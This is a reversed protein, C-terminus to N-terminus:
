VGRRIAFASILIVAIISIFGAWHMPILQIFYMSTLGLALLVLSVPPSVVFGAAAVTGVLIFAGLFGEKGLLIVRDLIAEVFDILVSNTGAVLKGIYTGNMNGLVYSFSGSRNTSCEKHLISQNFGTTNVVEICYTDTINFADLYSVFFTKTANHFTVNRELMHGQIVTLINIQGAPSVTIFYQTFLLKFMSTTLINQEGGDFLRFQYYDDARYLRLRANGDFDSVGSDVLMFSNNSINLKWAEVIVNQLKTLAPNQVTLVVETANTALLNYLSLNYSQNAITQNRKWFERIDYQLGSANGVTVNSGYQVNYNSTFNSNVNQVCIETFSVNVFNCGFTQNVSQLTTWITISDSGNQLISQNGFEDFFSFNLYATFNTAVNFCRGCSVNVNGVSQSSNSTSRLYNVGQYSINMWGKGQVIQDYLVAPTVFTVNWDEWYTQNNTISMSRNSQNWEGNITWNVGDAFLHKTVNVGLTQPFLEYLNPQMDFKNPYYAWLVSQNTLNSSQNEALSTTYNWQFSYNSRNQPVLPIRITINFVTNNGTSVNTINSGNYQTVNWTFNVNQITLPSMNTVNLTFNALSTTEYIPTNYTENNIGGNDLVLQTTNSGNRNRQSGFGTFNIWPKLQVYIDSAVMPSTMTMPNLTRFLPCGVVIPTTVASRNTGNYEITGVVTPVVPIGGTECIPTNWVISFSNSTSEFVPSTYTENYPYFAWDITQNTVNTSNTLNTGNTIITFNWQFSYNSHNTLTMNPRLSINFFTWNINDVGSTGTRNTIILNFGAPLSNGLAYTNNNNIFDYTFNAVVYNVDNGNWSVNATFNAIGVELVPSEYVYTVNVLLATIIQTANPDRTVYSGNFSINLWGKMQVATDFYVGPIAFTTNWEEYGSLNKLQQYALSTKNSQNWELTVNYYIGTRTPVHKTFNVTINNPVQNRIPSVYSFNNVYWGWEVNQTRNSSNGMIDLSANGTQMFSWNFNVATNNISVLPTYISINFKTWNQGAMTANDIQGNKYTVGNISFNVASINNFVSQDISVNISYNSIGGADFLGTTEWTENTVTLPVISLAGAWVRFTIDTSASYGPIRDSWMKGEAYPNTNDSFEWWQAFAGMNTANIIVTYNGSLNLLKNLTINMRVGSACSVLVTAAMQLQSTVDSVLIPVGTVATENYFVYATFVTGAPFVSTTANIFEFEFNTLYTNGASANFLFSQGFAHNNFGMNNLSAGLCSTQNVVLETTSFTPDLVNNFACNNNEICTWDDIKNGWVNLNWKGGYKEYSPLKYNFNYTKCEGPQFSEGKQNVYDFTDNWKHFVINEDLKTNGLPDVRMLSSQELPTYFSYDLFLYGQDEAKNCITINQTFNMVTWPSFATSPQAELITWSTNLTAKDDDTIVEGSEFYPVSIIEPELGLNILLNEFFGVQSAEPNEFSTAYTSTCLILMMAMIIFTKKM